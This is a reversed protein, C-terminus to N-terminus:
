PRITANLNVVRHAHSRVSSIWSSSFYLSRLLICPAHTLVIVPEAFRGFPAAPKLMRRSDFGLRGVTKRSKKVVSGYSQVQLRFFLTYAKNYKAVQVRFISCIPKPRCCSRALEMSFKMECSFFTRTAARFICLM